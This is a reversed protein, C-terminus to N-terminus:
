RGEVLGGQEQSIILLLIPKIRSAKLKSIIKYIVNCLCIPHFKDVSNAGKINPILTIFTANFVQLISRSNCYEEVVELIDNGLIPWGAQFFDIIFCDPGLSKGQAMNKVIDEVEELSALRMM